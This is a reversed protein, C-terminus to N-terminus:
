TQARQQRCKQMPEQTAFVVATARCRSERVLLVGDTQLSIRLLRMQQTRPAFLLCRTLIFKRKTSQADRPSAKGSREGNSSCIRRM